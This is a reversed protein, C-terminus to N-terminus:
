VAPRGAKFPFYHRTVEGEPQRPMAITEPMVQRVWGPRVEAVAVRRPAGQSEVDGHRATRASGVLLLARESRAVLGAGSRRSTRLSRCLGSVRFLCTRPNPLTEPLIRAM